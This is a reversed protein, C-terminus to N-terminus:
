LLKGDTAAELRNWSVPDQKEVMITVTALGSGPDSGFTWTSEDPRVAAFLSLDAIPQAQGKQKVTLAKVAVTVTTDKKGAGEPLMVTVELDDSTQEWKYSGVTPKPPPVDSSAGKARAQGEQTKEKAAKNYEGMAMHYQANESPASALWVSGSDLESLAFSVSHMPTPNVCVRGVFIDGLFPSEVDLGCSAALEAARKNTPLDKLVGMQM